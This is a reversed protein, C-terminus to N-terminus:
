SHRSSMGHEPGEQGAADGGERRGFRDKLFAVLAELSSFELRQGDHTSELSARWTRQENRESRRLRLLYSAYDDRENGVTM